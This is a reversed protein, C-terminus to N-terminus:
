ELKKLKQLMRRDKKSLTFSKGKRSLPQKYLDDLKNRMDRGAAQEMLLDLAKSDGAPLEDDVSEYKELEPEIKENGSFAQAADSLLNQQLIGYFEHVGLTDLDFKECATKLARDQTIVLLEKGKNREVFEVIWSDASSKTGSFVVVVGSKVTRTAHPSPGADFVTVIEDITPDKKTKYYALQQIFRDRQKTLNNKQGPWIQKLLNYGDIVIIM